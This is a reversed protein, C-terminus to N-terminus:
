TKEAVESQKKREKKKKQAQQACVGRTHLDGGHERDAGSFPTHEM